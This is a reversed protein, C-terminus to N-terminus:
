SSRVVQYWERKCDRSFPQRGAVRSRWFKSIGVPVDASRGRLESAARHETAPRLRRGNLVTKFLSRGADRIAGDDFDRTLFDEFASGWVTRMFWDEGLTSVVENADLGTQKCAPLHHADFAEAFRDRWEDHSLWKILGQLSHGHAM